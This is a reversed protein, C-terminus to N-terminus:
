GPTQGSTGPVLLESGTDDGGETESTQSFPHRGYLAVPVFVSSQDTAGEDGSPDTLYRVKFEGGTLSPADGVSSAVETDQQVPSNGSTNNGPLDVDLLEALQSDSTEVVRLASELASLDANPTEGENASLPTSARRTGTTPSAPPDLQTGPVINQTPEIQGAGGQPRDPVQAGELQRVMKEAYATVGPDSDASHTSTIDDARSRLTEQSSVPNQVQRGQETPPNVTPVNNPLDAPTSAVETTQNELRFSIFNPPISGRFSDM